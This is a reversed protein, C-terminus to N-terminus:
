QPNWLGISSEKITPIDVGGMGCILVFADYAADRAAEADTRERSTKSFGLGTSYQSASSANLNQLALLADCYLNLENTAQQQWLAQTNTDDDTISTIYSTLLAKIATVDASTAHTGM